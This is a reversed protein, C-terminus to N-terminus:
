RNFFKSSVNTDHNYSVIDTSDSAILVTGPYKRAVFKKLLSNSKPWDNTDQLNENVLYFTWHLHPSGYLKTSVVDPRDGDAIEYTTYNIISSVAEQEIKSKRFFDKIYIVKGDDMQYQIEPFNTFFRDAM